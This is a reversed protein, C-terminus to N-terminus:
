ECFSIDESNLGLKAAFVERSTEQDGLMDILKNQLALAGPMSSGDALKAVTALSLDRNTAVKQVFVDHFIKLDREFLLREDETLPKDPNGIDKFKGSSLQVFRLGNNANQGTNELYSMTIGISGVDSFPSAIITNAGTAILYGGSDGYERIVAVTPKSSRKLADAILEAAVPGGGLSDIRVLIGAVEQEQEAMRLTALIDDSNVVPDSGSETTGITTIDGVIPVVAINCVGDSIRTSWNYGSWEDHWVGFLWLGAGFVVFVALSWTVPRLLERSITKM